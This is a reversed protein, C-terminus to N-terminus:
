LDGGILVEDSWASKIGNIDTSRIKVAWQGSGIPLDAQGDRCPAFISGGMNDFVLHRRAIECEGLEEPPLYTGDERETPVEWMVDSRGCSLLALATISILLLSNKM